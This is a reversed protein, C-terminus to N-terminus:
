GDWIEYARRYVGEYYAPDREHDIDDRCQYQGVTKEHIENCVALCHKYNTSQTSQSWGFLTCVLLDTIDCRNKLCMAVYVDEFRAIRGHGETFEKDAGFHLM